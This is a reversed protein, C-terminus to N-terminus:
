FQTELRIQGSFGCPISITFTKNQLRNREESIFARLQLADNYTNQTTVKDEYTELQLQKKITNNWLNGYQIEYRKIHKKQNNKVAGDM